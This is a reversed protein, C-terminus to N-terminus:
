TSRQCVSCFVTARQALRTGTLPTRCRRCPDGARGYVQHRSQYSGPAGSADRYDRITSGGRAIADRLVRRIACALRNTEERVLTDAPRAPHIGAAFLAEDAYINGVGAVFSQDLLAAKVARRTRAARTRLETARLSLADPGLSRWLNAHGDPAARVLGFRRPDVFRLASGGALRWVIHTHPPHRRPRPEHTHLLAGTMGLHVIVSRGDAAVLALQKGRRELREIAARDLLLEPTLPAPTFPARQRSAGGPPDGPAVVVDRRLVRVSDVTQGVLVPELSRRLTEVEPLEPV